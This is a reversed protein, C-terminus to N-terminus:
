KTEIAKWVVGYSSYLCNDKIWYQGSSFIGNRYKHLASKVNKAEIQCCLEDFDGNTKFINFKKMFNDEKEFDDIFNRIM